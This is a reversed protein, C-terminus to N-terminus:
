GWKERAISTEPLTIVLDWSTENANLGRCRLWRWRLWRKAVPHRSTAHHPAPHKSGLHIPHSPFNTPQHYLNNHQQKDHFNISIIYRYATYNGDINSKDLSSNQLSFTSFLIWTQNTLWVFFLNLLTGNNWIEWFPLIYHFFGGVKIGDNEDRFLPQICCCFGDM